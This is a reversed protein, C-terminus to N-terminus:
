PRTLSELAEIVSKLECLLLHIMDGTRSDISNAPGGRIYPDILYRLQRQQRALDALRKRLETGTAPRDRAVKKPATHKRTM